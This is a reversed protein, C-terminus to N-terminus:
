ENVKLSPENERICKEMEDATMWGHIKWRDILGVWPERATGLAGLSGPCQLGEMLKALLKILKDNV